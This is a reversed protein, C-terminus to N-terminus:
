IELKTCVGQGQPSQQKGKKIGDQRIVRWSEIDIGSHKAREVAKDKVKCILIALLSICLLIYQDLM